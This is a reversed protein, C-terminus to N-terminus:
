LCSKLWHRIEIKQNWKSFDLNSNKGNLHLNLSEVQPAFSAMEKSQFM